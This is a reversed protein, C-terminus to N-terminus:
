LGVVLLCQLCQADLIQALLALYGGQKGLELVYRRLLFAFQPLLQVLDLRQGGLADIGQALAVLPLGLFLVLNVDGTRAKGGLHAGPMWQRHHALLDDVDERAQAEGKGLTGLDLVIPVHETRQVKGGVMRSAVHLVREEDLLVLIVHGAVDHQARVRATHLHAGHLAALRGDADDARPTDVAVLGDSGASVAEEVLNLTQVNVLPHGKGVQLLHQQM